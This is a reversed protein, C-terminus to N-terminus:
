RIINKKEGRLIKRRCATYMYYYLIYIYQIQVRTNLSHSNRIAKQTSTYDPPQNLFFRFKRRPFKIKFLPPNLFFSKLAILYFFLQHRAATTVRSSSNSSRRFSFFFFKVKKKNAPNTHLNKSFYLCLRKKKKKFSLRYM